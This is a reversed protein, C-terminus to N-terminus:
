EGEPFLDAGDTTRLQNDSKPHHFRNDVIHFCRHWCDNRHLNRKDRKEDFIIDRFWRLRGDRIGRCVVRLHWGALCAQPVSLQAHRYSPNCGV